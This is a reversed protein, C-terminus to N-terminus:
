TFKLFTGNRVRLLKMGPAACGYTDTGSRNHMVGFNLLNSIYIKSAKSLSFRIKCEKLIKGWVLATPGKVVFNAGLINGVRRLTKAVLELLTAANIFPKFSLLPTQKALFNHNFLSGLKKVWCVRKGRNRLRCFINDVGVRPFAISELELAFFNISEPIQLITIILLECFRRLLLNHEFIQYILHFGFLEFTGFTM